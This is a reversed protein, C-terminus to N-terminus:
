MNFASNIANMKSFLWDQRQGIFLVIGLRYTGPNTRNFRNNANKYEENKKPGETKIEKLDTIHM